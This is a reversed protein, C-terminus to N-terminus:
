LRKEFYNENWLFEYEQLIRENDFDQARRGSQLGLQRAYSSDRLVRVLAEALLREERSAQARYEWSRSCVPTLAGFEAYEIEQTQFKVDTSPALIERPGSKCDASVIPLGCAMAELLVMPLGEWLSSLVFVRARGLFAYPNEQWGAFYVDGAIGVSSVYSRLEEEMSGKGLICLKAQPLQKKVEQFAKIIHWQGKQKTLRGMAVVVPFEFVKQYASPLEEQSLKKIREVDIPNRLVRIKETSIGFTEGLDMKIAESVALILYARRFVFKAICKTFSGWVGKRGETLFMDVRIVAKRNTFINIIDASYGFSIVADPREKELLRRFRWWRLFFRYVRPVLSKTLAVDLSEIRGQFPYSINREFVALVLEVHAPAQFSLSSVVREAGGHALTPILIIVKRTAM